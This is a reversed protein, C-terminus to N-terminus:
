GKRLHTPLVWWDPQTAELRIAAQIMAEESSFLAFCTAGSGSMRVLNADPMASLAALVEVITPELQCAPKTLDNRRRALLKPLDVAAARFDKVLAAGSTSYQGAMAKFCAGTSVTNNPNVLLIPMEPLASILDQKEGIGSVLSPRGVLCVPLDTGLQLAQQMFGSQVLDPLGWLRGLGHLAAAADASGGGIGSALPLYKTLRLRAGLQIDYTRALLRAAKVILNELVQPPDQLESALMCAQAMGQQALAEAQPGTTEFIFDHHPWFELVDGVQTFGVLSELLHYGDARCGVIHLFLNIKAPATLNFTSKM